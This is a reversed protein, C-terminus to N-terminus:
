PTMWDAVMQVREPTAADPSVDLLAAILAADEPRKAPYPRGGFPESIQARTPGLTLGASVM